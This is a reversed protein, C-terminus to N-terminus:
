PKAAKAGDCKAHNQIAADKTSSCLYQTSGNSKQVKQWYFGGLSPKGEAVVKAVAPLPVLALTALATAILSSYRMKCFTAGDKESSVTRM